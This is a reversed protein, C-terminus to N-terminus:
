NSLWPAASVTTAGIETGFDSSIFAPKNENTTNCNLIILLCMKIHYHQYLKSTSNLYQTEDKYLEFCKCMLDNTIYHSLFFFLYYTFCCDPLADDSSKVCLAALTQLM